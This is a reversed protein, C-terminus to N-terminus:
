QKKKKKTISLHGISFYVDPKSVDHLSVKDFIDVISKIDSDIHKITQYIRKLAHVIRASYKSFPKAEFNNKMFYTKLFGINEFASHLYEYVELQFPMGDQIELLVHIFAGQTHYTDNHRLYTIQSITEIAECYKKNELLDHKKRLLDDYTSIKKNQTMTSLFRSKAHMNQLKVTKHSHCPIKDFKGDDNVIIFNTLYLNIDFIRNLMRKSFQLQLSNRYKNNLYKMINAIIRSSKVNLITMDVNSTDSRSGVNLVFLNHHSNIYTEISKTICHRIYLLGKIRDHSKSEIENNIYTNWNLHQYKQRYKFSNLFFPDYSKIENPECM